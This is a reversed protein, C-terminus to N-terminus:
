VKYISRAGPKLEIGHKTADNRGLRDSWMDKFESLMDMLEARINSHEAAIHVDEEWSLTKEADKVTREDANAPSVSHAGETDSEKRRALGKTATSSKIRGDDTTPGERPM